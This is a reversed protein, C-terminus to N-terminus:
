IILRVRLNYITKKSDEEKKDREYAPCGENRCKYRNHAKPNWRTCNNCIVKM